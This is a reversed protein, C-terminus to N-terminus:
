KKMSWETTWYSTYEGTKTYEAWRMVEHGLERVKQLMGLQALVRISHPILVLSAGVDEVIKPRAELVVYDIGAKSLVHAATLGVPGGGVM